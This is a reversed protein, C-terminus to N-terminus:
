SAWLHRMSGGYDVELVGTLYPSICKPNYKLMHEIAITKVEHFDPM